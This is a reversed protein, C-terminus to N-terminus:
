STSTLNKWIESPDRRDMILTMAQDGFRDYTTQLVQVITWVNKSIVAVMVSLMSAVLRNRLEKTVEFGLIRLKDELLTEMNSAIDLTERLEARRAAETERPMEQTDMDDRELRLARPKGEDLDWVFALADKANQHGYYCDPELTQEKWSLLVREYCGFLFENAAVCKNLSALILVALISIDFPFIICLATLDHYYWQATLLFVFMVAMMVLCANIYQEVEKRENFIDVRVYRRFRRFFLVGEKTSFNFTVQHVHLNTLEDWRQRRRSGQRDLPVPAVKQLDSTEQARHLGAAGRTQQMNWRDQEDELFEVKISSGGQMFKNFNNKRYTDNRQWVRKM